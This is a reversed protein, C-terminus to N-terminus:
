LLGPEFVEEMLGKIKDTVKRRHGIAGAGGTLVNNVAWFDGDAGNNEIHYLYGDKFILEKGGGYIDTTDILITGGDEIAALSTNEELREGNKTFIMIETVKKNYERKQREEEERAERLKRDEAKRVYFNEEDAKTVKRADAKCHYMMMNDDWGGFSMSDPERYKWTEVVKYLKGKAELIQGVIYEGGFNWTKLTYESELKEKEEKMKKYEARLEELKENIEKALEVDFKEIIDINELVVKEGKDYWYEEINKNIYALYRKAIKEYNQNKLDQLEKKLEDAVTAENLEELSNIGEIVITEGNTYWYDKLNNKIYGMYKSTNKKVLEIEELIRTNEEEKETLLYLFREVYHKYGNKYEVNFTEKLISGEELNLSKINENILLKYKKEYGEDTIEVVHMWKRGVKKVIVELNIKKM